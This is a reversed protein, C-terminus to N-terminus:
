SEAISVRCKQKVMFHENDFNENMVILVAVLNVSRGEEFNKLVIVYDIIIFYTAM